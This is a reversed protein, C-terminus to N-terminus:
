MLTCGGTKTFTRPAWPLLEAPIGLMPWAEDGATPSFSSLGLGQKVETPGLLNVPDVSQSESFCPLMGRLNSMDCFVRQTRPLHLLGHRTSINRNQLATYSSATHPLVTTYWTLCHILTYTHTHPEIDLGLLSSSIQVLIISWIVMKQLGDGGHNIM